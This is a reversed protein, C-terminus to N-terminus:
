SNEQIGGNLYNVQYGHIFLIYAAVKSEQGDDCITLIKAKGMDTKLVQFRLARLPVSKLDFNKMWNKATRCQQHQTKDRVDVVSGQHTYISNTSLKAILPIYILEFFKEKSLRLVTCQSTARVQTLHPKDMILSEEGFTEGPLVPRLNIMEGLRSTSHYVYECDGVALLYFHNSLSNQKIIIDGKRYEVTDANQIVKATQLPGIVRNLTKTVQVMPDPDFRQTKESNSSGATSPVSIYKIDTRAVAFVRRPIVHDIPSLAEDSEAEISSLIRAGKSLKSVLGVRGKILYIEDTSIDGKMFLVEGKKLTKVEYQHALQTLAQRTMLQIENTVDM